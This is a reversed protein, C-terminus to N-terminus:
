GMQLDAEAKPYSRQLWEGFKRTKLCANRDVCRVVQDQQTYIRFTDVKADLVAGQLNPPLNESPYGVFYRIGPGVSTDSTLADRILSGVVSHDPHDGPAFASGRPIHTLTSDPTFATAMERISGVLQDRTVPPGGDVPLLSGVAGDYLKGLTAHATSGFGAGTLNGDPLRLYLVSLRADNKPALRRVQVGTDLTIETADWEGDAGRMANYARLIGLERATVYDMGEGADGATIFVSRVCRGAAVADSITPNAFIIDDDPHAWVTMLTSSGECGQALPSPRAPSPTPVPTATPLAPVSPTPTTVAPSPTPTPMTAPEPRLLAFAFVGGVAVVVVVAIAIAAILGAQGRRPRPSPARSM